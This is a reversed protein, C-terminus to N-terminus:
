TTSRAASTSTPCISTGTAIRDSPSTSARAKAPPSAAPAIWGVPAAEVRSVRQSASVAVVDADLMMFTLRRYGELPHEWYFDLIAQKEWDELWHDRPIWANHENVKGYRKRWDYFKGEPIGM